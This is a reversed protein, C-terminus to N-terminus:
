ARGVRYMAEALLIGVLGLVVIWQGQLAAFKVVMM